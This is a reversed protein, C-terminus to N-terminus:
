PRPETAVGLAHCSVFPDVLDPPGEIYIPYCDPRNICSAEDLAACPHPDPCQSDPCVAWNEPIAVGSDFTGREGTRLNMGVVRNNDSACNALFGNSLLAATLGM